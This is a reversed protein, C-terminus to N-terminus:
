DIVIHFEDNFLTTFANMQMITVIKENRYYREDYKKIVLILSYTISQASDIINAM